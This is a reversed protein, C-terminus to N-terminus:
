TKETPVMTTTCISAKEAINPRELTEQIVYHTVGNNRTSALREMIGARTNQDRSVHTAKFSEFLKIKERVLALYKQMGLEKTQAEGRIQTVVLQSDTHLKLNKAGMELALNLGAICTEYEAQNNTASHAFKLSVVM